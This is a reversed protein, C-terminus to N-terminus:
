EVKTKKSLLDPKPPQQPPSSPGQSTNHIHNAIYDLLSEGLAAAEGESVGLKILNAEVEVLDTGNLYIEKGQVTANGNETLVDINGETTEAKINGETTKATIDGEAIFNINGKAVHYTDTLSKMVISGDSKMEVYSGTRHIMRLREAGETDDTEVIHGSRSEYVKNFPYEPAATQEPEGEVLFNEEDNLIENIPHDQWDSRALQNVHSTDLKDDLPYEGDPDAFGSNSNPKEEPTKRGISFLVVPIQANRGDAFIGMVQTGQVLDHPSKGLGHMRGEMASSAVQAWMLEDTPIGRTTTKKKEPSHVAYMRVRVRNDEEPDNIDEVVGMWWVINQFPFINNM